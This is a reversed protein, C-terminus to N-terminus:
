PPAEPSSISDPRLQDHLTESSGSAAVATATTQTTQTGCGDGAVARGSRAYATIGAGVAGSTLSILAIVIAVRGRKGEVIINAKSKQKELALASEAALRAKEIDTV